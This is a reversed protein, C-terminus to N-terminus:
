AFGGDGAESILAALKDAEGAVTLGLTERVNAVTQDQM